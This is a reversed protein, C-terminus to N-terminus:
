LSHNLCILANIGYGGQVFSLESIGKPSIVAHVLLRTSFKAKQKFRVEPPCTMIDQMWVGDNGRVKAGKLMLYSEDDIVIAMNRGPPFFIM